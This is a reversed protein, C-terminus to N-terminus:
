TPSWVDDFKVLDFWGCRSCHVAASSRGAEDYNVGKALIFEAGCQACCIEPRGQETLRYEGACLRGERIRPLRLASM